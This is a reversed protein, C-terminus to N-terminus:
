QFRRPPQTYPRTAADDDVTGLGADDGPTVPSEAKDDTDISYRM